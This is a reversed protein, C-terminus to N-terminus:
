FAHWVYFVNHILITIYSRRNKQGGFLKYKIVGYIYM